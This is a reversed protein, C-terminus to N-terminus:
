WCGSQGGAQLLYLRPHLEVEKLLVAGFGAMRSPVGYWSTRGGYGIDSERAFFDGKGCRDGVQTNFHVRLEGKVGVDFVETLCWEVMEPVDGFETWCEGQCICPLEEMDKDGGPHVVSISEESPDSALADLPKLTYLVASSNQIYLIRILTRSYSWM